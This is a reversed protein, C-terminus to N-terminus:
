WRPRAARWVADFNDLYSKGYRSGAVTHIAPTHQSQLGAFVPGVVIENDVRVLSTSPKQAFYRVEILTSFQGRLEDVVAGTSDYSPHDSVPLYTKEPLLLRVHVGNQLASILLKKEPRHSSRDSFDRMFRSATVGEVDVATQANALIHAYYSTLDRSDLVNKIRMARFKSIQSFEAWSLVFQLLAVLLGPVLGVMFLWFPGEKDFFSKETLNLSFYLLPVFLIITGCLVIWPLGISFSRSYISM